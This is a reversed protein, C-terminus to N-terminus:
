KKEFSFSYPLFPSDGNGQDGIYGMYVNISFLAGAIYVGIKVCRDFPLYNKQYIFLVSVPVVFTLMDLIRLGAYSLRALFWAGILFMGVFFWLRRKERFPLKGFSFFVMILFIVIVNSVGSYMGPSEFDWYVLIKEILYDRAYYLFGFIFSGVLFVYKWSIKVNVNKSFIYFFLPMVAATYQFSIAGLFYKFKGVYGNKMISQFVLLSIASAIGVRLVNMSYSYSFVPLLFSLLLFREDRNSRVVYFFLLFYFIISILKVSVESDQVIFLICEALINFGVEAYPAEVDNMLNNFISIYASTDTGVDGRFFAIFACYCLVVVAWIKGSINFYQLPATLFM